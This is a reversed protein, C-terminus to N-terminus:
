VNNSLVYMKKLLYTIQNNVNCSFSRFKRIQHAHKSTDTAEWLIISPIEYFTVRAYRIRTSRISCHCIKIPALKWEVVGWKKSRPFNIQEAAGLFLFGYNNASANNCIRKTCFRTKKCWMRARHEAVWKLKSRNSSENAAAAAAWIRISFDRTMRFIGLVYVTNYIYDIILSYLFMLLLNISRAFRSTWYIKIFPPWM